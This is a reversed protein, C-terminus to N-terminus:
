QVVEVWYGKTRAQEEPKYMAECIAAPLYFRGCYAAQLRVRISTSYGDRLNFYSMVRDDRVDQYNLNSANSNTSFLRENFIEWGSPFIQTM